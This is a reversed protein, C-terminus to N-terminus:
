PALGEERVFELIAETALEYGHSSLHVPDIFLGEDSHERFLPLLDLAPVGEDEAFALLRDQPERADFTTPQVNARVQPDNPFIIIGVRFGEREGLRIIERLAELSDSMADYDWTSTWEISLAYLDDLKDPDDVWELSWYLSYGSGPKRAQSRVQETVNIATKEVYWSYAASHQMFFNYVQASWTPPPPWPRADNMVYGILVVDPDFRLGWEQLWMLEQDTSYDATGGNVVEVPPADAPATAALAVELRKPYSEELEYGHGYTVSDGLALIRFTDAPKPIAYERDRLGQSSITLTFGTGDANYFRGSYNPSWRHGLRRSQLYANSNPRLGSLRAVGEIAGLVLLIGFLAIVLGQRLLRRKSAPGDPSAESRTSGQL